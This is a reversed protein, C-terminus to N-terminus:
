IDYIFVGCHAKLQLIPKDQDRGLGSSMGLKVFFTKEEPLDLKHLALRSAM